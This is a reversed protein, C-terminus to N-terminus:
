VHLTSCCLPRHGANATKPGAGAVKLVPAQL